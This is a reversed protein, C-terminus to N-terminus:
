VYQVLLGVSLWDTINSYKCYMMQLRLLFEQNLWTEWSRLVVLLIFGKMMYQHWSQKVHISILRQPVPIDICGTHFPFLSGYCVVIPLSFASMFRCSASSRDADNTFIHSDVPAKHWYRRWGDTPLGDKIEAIVWVLWNSEHVYNYWSLMLPPKPKHSIDQKRCYCQCNKGSMQASLCHLCIKLKTLFLHYFKVM